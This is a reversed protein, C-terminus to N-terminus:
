KGEGFNGYGNIGSINSWAKDMDTALQQASLHNFEEANDYTTALTLLDQKLSVMTSHLQKLLGQTDGVLGPGAGPQGTGAIAQRMVEAKAFKGPRINLDDFKAAADILLGHGDDSAVKDIQNAFYRIADTSVKLDGGKNNDGGTYASVDPPNIKTNPNAYPHSSDGYSDFKIDKGGNDKFDKVLANWTANGDDGVVDNFYWNWLDQKDQPYNSLSWTTTTAKGVTHTQAQKDSIMNDLTSQAWGADHKGPHGAIQGNDYKTFLGMQAAAAENPYSYDISGM